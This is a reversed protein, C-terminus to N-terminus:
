TTGYSLIEKKLASYYKLSCHRACLLCEVHPSLIPLELSSVCISNFLSLKGLKRIFNVISISNCVELKPHYFAQNSQESWDEWQFSSFISFWIYKLVKGWLLFSTVFSYYVELVFRILVLSNFSCLLQTQGSLM